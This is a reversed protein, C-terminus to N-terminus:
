SGKFISKWQKQTVEYKGIWFGKTLTVKHQKEDFLKDGNNVPNGMEFTGPPIYVMELTTDKPLQVTWNEGIKPLSVEKETLTSTEDESVDDSSVLAVYAPKPLEIDIIVIDFIIKALVVIIIMFILFFASKTSQILKM